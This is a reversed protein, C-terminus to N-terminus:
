TSAALPERRRSPDHILDRSLLGIQESLRDDLDASWSGLIRTLADRRASVLRDVADAGAGTFRIVVNDTEVAGTVAVFGCDLLPRLM